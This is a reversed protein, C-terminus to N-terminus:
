PFTILSGDSDTIFNGANDIIFQNQSPKPTVYIRQAFYTNVREVTSWGFMQQIAADTYGSLKLQKVKNYRFIYSIASKNETGITKYLLIKKNVSEIQRLSLSQYPRIQNQIAFVLGATLQAETFTRETNGKLPQLTIHNADIYAWLDIQLLEEPRCGTSLADKNFDQVIPYYIYATNALYNCTENLQNDDILYQM